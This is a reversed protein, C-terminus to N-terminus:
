IMSPFRAFLRTAASDNTSKMLVDSEMRQLIIFFIINGHQRGLFFCNGCNRYFCLLLPERVKHLCMTIRCQPKLYM